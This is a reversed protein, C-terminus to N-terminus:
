DRVRTLEGRYHGSVARGARTTGRFAIDVGDGELATVTLTLASAPDDEDMTNTAFNMNKCFYGARYKSVVSTLYDTADNVSQAHTGFIDREASQDTFDFLFVDSTETLGHFGRLDRPSVVLRRYGRHDPPFLYARRLEETRGAVSWQHTAGGADVPAAYPQHMVALPGTFNVTVPRGQSDTLTGTIRAGYNEITVDLDAGRLPYGRARTYRFNQEPLFAAGDTQEPTFHGQPLDEGTGAGYLDVVLAPSLGTLKGAQRVEDTTLVLHHRPREPHDVYLVYAYNLAVRGVALDAYSTAEEDPTVDAETLQLDTECATFLLLLLLGSLLLRTPPTTLRRVNM